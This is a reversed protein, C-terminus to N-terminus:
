TARLKSALSAPLDNFRGRYVYDMTLGWREALAFAHEAKLPKDGQIVKSYSSPDLGFSAAFENKNLDLATRIAELRAGIGPLDLKM